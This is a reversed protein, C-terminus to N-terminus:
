FFLKAKRSFLPIFVCNQCQHCVEWKFTQCGFQIKVLIMWWQVPSLHLMKESAMPFKLQTRCSLCNHANALRRHTDAVRTQSADRNRPTDGLHTKSTHRRPTDGLHTESTHRRPTDELHTESTHRQPTGELHTELTHRWHTARLHTESSHRGRLATGSSVKFGPTNKSRMIKQWM